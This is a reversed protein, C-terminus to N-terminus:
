ADESRPHEMAQGFQVDAVTHVQSVPGLEMITTVVTTTSSVVVAEFVGGGGFSSDGDPLCFHALVILVAEM